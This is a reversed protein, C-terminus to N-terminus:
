EPGAVGILNGEPDIFQGVITVGPTGVPGLVRTGGRREAEVLAEAVNAVSVYFLVYPQYGDG